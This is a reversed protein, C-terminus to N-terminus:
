VATLHMSTSRGALMSANESSTSATAEAAGTMPAAIALSSRGQPAHGSQVMERRRQQGEICADAIRGANDVMETMTLLGVDPWGLRSASTGAGTMYVADYGEAAVVRAWAADIVGPIQTLKPEAILERMRTTMRAATKDATM